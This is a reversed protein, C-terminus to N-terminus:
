MGLEMIVMLDGMFSSVGVVDDVFVGRRVNRCVERRGVSERRRGGKDGDWAVVVVLVPIIRGEGPSIEEAMGEGQGEESLGKRARSEEM